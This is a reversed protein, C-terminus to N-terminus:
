MPRQTGFNDAPINAKLQYQIGGGPAGAFDPQPAVRGMQMPTGAPVTVDSIHTPVQPLALHQQIQQPTMSVAAQIRYANSCVAPIDFRLM